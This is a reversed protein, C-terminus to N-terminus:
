KGQMRSHEKEDRQKRYHTHTHPPPGRLLKQLSDLKSVSWSHHMFNHFQLEQSSKSDLLNHACGLM